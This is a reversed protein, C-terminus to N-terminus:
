DRWPDRIADRLAAANAGCRIGLHRVIHMRPEGEGAAYILLATPLATAAAYSLVQYLDPHLVGQINVRKYKVDGVFLCRGQRWWSLDPRLRVQRAEDLHLRQNNCGQPFLVADLELQERLAIVVFDEFVQNMDVRFAISTRDAPGLEPSRAALILRALEVAPQYHQNLRNYSVIPVPSTQIHTLPIPELPTAVQRLERRSTPNQLPLRSLAHHAAKLLRNALIDESFEDYSVALPLMQGFRRHVQTTVDIRGRVTALEEARQEYGQLLGLRLAQRTLTTFAPVVAEFVDLEDATPAPYQWWRDPNLCYSLLFMLRQVGIKPTITVQLDGIVATGVTSSPILDYHGELGATPIAQVGLHHRLADRETTTLAVAPSTRTEILRLHRMM